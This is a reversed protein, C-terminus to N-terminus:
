FYFSLSELQSLEFGGIAIFSLLEFLLKFFCEFQLFFFICFSLNHCFKFSLNNCFEFCSYVEVVSSIFEPCGKAAACHKECVHLFM